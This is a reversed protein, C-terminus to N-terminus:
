WPGKSQHNNYCWKKCDWCSQTFTESSLARKQVKEGRTSKKQTHTTTTTMMQKNIEIVTFCYIFLCFICIVTGELVMLDVRWGVWTADLIGWFGWGGWLGYYNQTVKHMSECYCCPVIVFTLNGHQNNRVSTHKHYLSTIEIPSPSMAVMHKCSEEWGLSYEYKLGLVM